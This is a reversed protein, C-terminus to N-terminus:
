GGYVLSRGVGPGEESMAARAAPDNRVADAVIRGMIRRGVVLQASVSGATMGRGENLARVGEAGGLADVARRRVIGERPDMGVLQHDGALRVEPTKGMPFQPPKSALVMGAQVGATIGAAIAGPPGGMIFGTAVMQPTQLAINAIGLAKQIAFAQKAARKRMKIAAKRSKIEQNVEALQQEARAKAAASDANRAKERLMQRKEALGEIADREQSIGQELAAIRQDMAFSMANIQAEAMAQMGDRQRQRQEEELSDLEAITAATMDATRQASAQRKAQEEAQIATIGRIREAEAAARAASALDADAGAQEAARIADIRESYALNVRDLESLQGATSAAIISGLDENAKLIQNIASEQESIADTLAKATQAAQKQAQEVEKSSEATDELAESVERGKAATEEFSQEVADAAGTLESLGFTALAAVNRLNFVSQSAERIERLRDILGSASDSAGVFAAAAPELGESIFALVEVKTGLTAAEVGLMSQKYQDLSEQAQSSIAAAGSIEELRDRAEEASSVLEVLAGAAFGVGLAFAGVGGAATVAAGGVGGIANGMDAIKTGLDLISDSIDGAVGGSLGATREATDKTADFSQEFAVQNAKAAKKAARETRKYQKRIANVMKTAEKKGVDPMEALAEKLGRIDAELSISLTEDAV